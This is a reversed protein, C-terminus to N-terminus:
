LKSNNNQFAVTRFSTTKKNELRSAQLFISGYSAAEEVSVAIWQESVIETM